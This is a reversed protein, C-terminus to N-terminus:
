NQSCHELYYNVNQVVTELKKAIETKSYGQKSLRKAERRREMRRQKRQPDLRIGLRWRKCGVESNTRGLRRAIYKTPLHCNEKLYAIEETTWKKPFRLYSQLMTELTEQKAKTTFGIKEKFLLLQDHQQLVLTYFPKKGKQTKVSWRPTIGLRNIILQIQRLGKENVSGAEVKRTSFHKLYQYAGGEAEFFGQLGYSILDLSAVTLLWEFCSDQFHWKYKGFEAYKCLDCCVKKSKIHAIWCNSDKKPKLHPTLGYEQSFESSWRKVFDLSGCIGIEKDIMQRSIPHLGDGLLSTIVYLKSKSLKDRIIPEYCQFRGLLDHKVTNM